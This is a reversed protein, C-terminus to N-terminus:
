VFTQQPPDYHNFTLMHDALGHGELHEAVDVLAPVDAKQPDRLGNHALDLERTVCDLFREHAEDVASLSESALAADVAPDPARDYM